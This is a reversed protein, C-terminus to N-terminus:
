AAITSGHVGAVHRTREREHQAAEGPQRLPIVGADPFHAIAKCDPCVETLGHHGQIRFLFPCPDGCVSCRSPALSPM